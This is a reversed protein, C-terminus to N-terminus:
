VAHPGSGLLPEGAPVLVPRLPLEPDLAVLRRPGPESAQEVGLRVVDGDRRRDRLADAREDRREIERALPVADHDALVLEGGDALDRMRLLEAAGLDNVDPGLRVPANRELAECICDVFPRREDAASRHGEPRTMAVVHGRDGLERM